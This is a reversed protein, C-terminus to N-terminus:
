LSIEFRRFMLSGVVGYVNPCRRLPHRLVEEVLHFDTSDQQQWYTWLSVLLYVEQEELIRLAVNRKPRNM